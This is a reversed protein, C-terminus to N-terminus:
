CYNSHRVARGGPRMGCHRDTAAGRRRGSGPHYLYLCTGNGVKVADAGANITDRTAEATAVNGGIVQLDPAAKKVEEIAALVNTSHGHASDVVVVDVGCRM